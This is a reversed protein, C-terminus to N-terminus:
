WKYENWKIAQLLFSHVYETDSKLVIDINFKYGSLIQFMIKFYNHYM